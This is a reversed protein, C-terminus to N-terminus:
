ESPGGATLQPRLWRQGVRRPEPWGLVPAERRCCLPLMRARWALGAVSLWTSWSVVGKSGAPLPYLGLYDNNYGFQKEQAAATLNNPDFAPAGAVVPDGWRIVVQMDYGEAVHQDQDLTHALEKFSLSSPGAEQALASGAAAFIGAGALGRLADRRNLRRDILDGITLQSDQTM